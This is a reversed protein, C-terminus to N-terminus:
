VSTSTLHLKARHRQVEPLPRITSSATSVTTPSLDTTRSGAPPSTDPLEAILDAIGTDELDRYPPKTPVSLHQKALWGGLRDSQEVLHVDFGTDAAERAATLGAIGGGIVVVRTTRKM